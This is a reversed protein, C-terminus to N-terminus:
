AQKNYTLIANSLYMILCGWFIDLLASFSANLKFELIAIITLSSTDRSHVANIQINPLLLSPPLKNWTNILKM